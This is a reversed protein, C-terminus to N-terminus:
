LLANVLREMDTLDALRRRSHPNWTKRINFCFVDDFRGWWLSGTSRNLLDAFQEISNPHNGFAGTATSCFMGLDEYIYRLFEEFNVGAHGLGRPYVEMMLTKVTRNQFLYKSGKLVEFEAGQVDLKYFFIDTDIVDDLRLIRISKVELTAYLADPPEEVMSSGPGNLTLNVYGDISGVGAGILYGGKYKPKLPFKATEPDVYECKSKGLKECKVRLKTLTVPNAEFGFVSYSYNLATFFEQGGDLGIDVVVKGPGHSMLIKPVGMHGESRCKLEAIFDYVQSPCTPCPVPTAKVEVHSLVPSAKAEAESTNLGAESTNSRAEAESRWTEVGFKWFSFDDKNFRFGVAMGSCFTVLLLVAMKSVPFESRTKQSLM